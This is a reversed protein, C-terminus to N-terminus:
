KLSHFFYLNWINLNWNWIEFTELQPRIEKGPRAYIQFQRNNWVAKAFMLHLNTVNGRRLKREVERPQTVKSKGQISKNGDKLM